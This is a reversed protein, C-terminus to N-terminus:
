AVHGWTEGAKVKAICSRGVNFHQAIARCTMDGKLMLRIAKVQGERLRSQPKESGILKRRRNKSLCDRINDLQTGLFLHDPNVCSPVDCKHLVKMGVPIPGRHLLWSARHAVIPSGRGGMQFLGYRMKTKRGSKLAGTWLWCDEPKEPALVFAAFREEPPRRAPGRPKGVNDKQRRIKM